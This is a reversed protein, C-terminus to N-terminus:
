LVPRGREPVVEFTLEADPDFNAAFVPAAALPPPHIRSGPPVPTMGPIPPAFGGVPLPALEQEALQALRRAELAAEVPLLYDQEIQTRIIEGYTANLESFAARPHGRSFTENDLVKLTAAKRQQKEVFADVFHLRAIARDATSRRDSELAFPKVVFATLFESHRAASELVFPLAGTGSGGGLSAVVTVFTAGEFLRDLAPEAARAHQAGVLPSGRTDDASGDWGLCVRRDYVDHSQVREDCNIAITELHRLHHGVVVRGVRVAGGGVAALVFRVDHGLRLTEGAAVEAHNYENGLRVRENGQAETEYTTGM